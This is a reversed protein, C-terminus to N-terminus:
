KIQQPTEQLFDAVPAPAQDVIVNDRLRDGARVRGTASRGRGTTNFMDGGFVRDAGFKGSWFVDDLLAEGIAVGAEDYSDFPLKGPKEPIGVVMVFFVFYVTAEHQTLRLIGDPVVIDM